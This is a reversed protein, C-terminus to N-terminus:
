NEQKLVDVPNVVSNKYAHWASTALVILVVALSPLVFHEMGTSIHYAFSNLWYDSLYYIVPAAVVISIVIFKVFVKIHLFFLHTNGAGVVKRIGMERNRLTMLLASISFIGLCSAFISIVLGAELVNQIEFDERYLSAYRSDLFNLEFPQDTHVKKQVSEIQQLLDPPHIPETKIYIFMIGWDANAPFIVLPEIPEHLTSLHFDRVVGVVPGEMEDPGTIMKGIPEKWGFEKLAAQNILYPRSGAATEAFFQGDALQIKMMNFFGPSVHLYQVMKRKVGENTEVDFVDRTEIQGAPFFSSAEAGSVGPLKRLEETLTMNKGYNHNPLALVITNEDEIGKDSQNIYSLQDIVVGILGLMIISFALQIAVLHQRLPLGRQKSALNSKMHQTVLHAGGIIWANLKTSALMLVLFGLVLVLFPTGSLVAPDINVDFLTYAMQIGAALLLAAMPLVILLCLIADTFVIKQPNANIGGFVQLIGIKRLQTSLEALVLNHYNILGTAVFLVMVVILIYINSAKRKVAIDEDLYSWLHVDSVNQVIPEFEAKYERIMEELYDHAIASIDQTAKEITVEDSFKVYTYANINDWEDRWKITKWSILADFQLHSNSPVDELVGTVEVNIGHFDINKGLPNQDGFLQEGFSETIVVRNPEHLADVKGSILRYGFTKLFNSDAAIALQHSFLNDNAKFVPKALHMIRAYGEVGPLEEYVSPGLRLPSVAYHTTKGDLVVYSGVRFLRKYGAHFQDFTLEQVVFAALTLTFALCVALGTVKVAFTFKNRTANRIAIRFNLNWLIDLYGPRFDNPARRINSARLFKVIDWWYKADAMRKGEKALRDFYLEHADGQIEELLDPNCYWTLLRDAWKPPRTEM